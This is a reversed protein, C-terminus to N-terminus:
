RLQCTKYCRELSTLTWNAFYAENVLQCGPINDRCFTILEQLANPCSTTLFTQEKQRYLEATFNAGAVLPKQDSHMHTKENRDRIITEAIRHCLAPDVGSSGCLHSENLVRTIDAVTPALLLTEIQVHPIGHQRAVTLLHWFHIYHAVCAKVNKDGMKWTTSNQSAAYSRLAVLHDGSPLRRLEEASAEQFSDWILEYWKPINAPFTHQPLRHAVFVPFGRLHMDLLLKGNAFNDKTFGVNSTSLTSMVATMSENSCSQWINKYYKKSGSGFCSMVTQPRINCEPNLFEPPCSRKVLHKPFPM